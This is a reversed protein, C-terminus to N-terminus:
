DSLAAIQQALTPGIGEVECLQSEPAQLVAALGGFHELLLMRRKRGLGRVNELVDQGDTSASQRRQKRGASDHARDRAVQVMAMASPSLQLLEGEASLIRDNEARRGEGKTIGFLLGQSPISGDSSSHIKQLRAAAANIQQIGGDVVIVDPYEAVPLNRFYKALALDICAPDNGAHEGTRYTRSGRRDHGQHNFSAVAVTGNRGQMHSADIAILSRISPVQLDTQLAEIRVRYSERKNEWDHLAQESHARCIEYLKSMRGRQIKAINLMVPLPEEATGVFMKRASEYDEDDKIYITDPVLAGTQLYWQGLFAQVLDSSTMAGQKAHAEAELSPSDVFHTRPRSPVGDFLPLCAFVACDSRRTWSIIEVVSTVRRRKPADAVSKAEVSQPQQVRRLAALRDRFRVAREYQQKESAKHMKATLAKGIADSRGELVRAADAVAEGYKDESIRGVCPASCRGIQHELCPRVRTRFEEDACIRLGFAKQLEGTLMRAHDARTFPGFVRFKARDFNRGVLIRPYTHRKTLAISPYTKDDRLAINYRPVEQKIWACELLMAESESATTTWEIGTAHDLMHRIHYQQVKAAAYSNLRNALVRAKGIYLAQGYEGTFCYVGPKHPATQIREVLAPSLM